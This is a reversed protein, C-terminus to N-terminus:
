QIKTECCSKPTTPTSAFLTLVLLLFVTWSRELTKHTNTQEQNQICFQPHPTPGPLNNLLTYLYVYSMYTHTYSPYSQHQHNHTHTPIRTHRRTVTIHTHTKNIMVVFLLSLSHIFVLDFVFCILARTPHSLPGGHTLSLSLGAAWGNM